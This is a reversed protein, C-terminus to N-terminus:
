KNAIIQLSKDDIFIDAYVKRPSLGVDKVEQINDNIADFELGFKKCYEIADQLAHETRNTWLIKKYDKYKGTKLENILEINPSIIEPFKTYALTGDFDVAVIKPLTTYDFKQAVEPSVFNNKYVIWNSPGTLNLRNILSLYKDRLNKIYEITYHGDEGNHHCNYLCVDIPTDVFITIIPEMHNRSAIRYEIARLEDESSLWNKAVREEENQYIFQGLHMRDIILNKNNYILSGFYDLNNPTNRTSHVIEFNMFKFTEQIHKALTSKGSGDVGELIFKM